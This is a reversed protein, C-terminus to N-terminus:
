DEKSARHNHAPSGKEPDTGRRGTEELISAEAM